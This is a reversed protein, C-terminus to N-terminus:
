IFTKLNNKFVDDFIECGIQNMTARRGWANTKRKFLIRYSSFKKECLFM